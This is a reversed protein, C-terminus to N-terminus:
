AFTAPVVHMEVRRNPAQEERGGTVPKGGIIMPVESGRGVIKVPVGAQAFHHAVEKAREESLGINYTKSGASSCAYGELVITKKDKNDNENILKKAQEINYALKDKQDDRLASGDFDFNVIKYEQDQDGAADVWAFEDPNIGGGAEESVGADETVAMTEDEDPTLLVFEDTDQDFFSRVSEDAIAGGDNDGALQMDVQSFSDLRQSVKKTKPQKVRKDKKGGCGSLGMLLVLIIMSEKKLVM